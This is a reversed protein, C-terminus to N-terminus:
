RAGLGYLALLTRRRGARKRLRRRLERGFVAVATVDDETAARGGFLVAQARDTLLRADLGFRGEVFVATEEFTQSAPVAHGFEDLDAHVMALAARLRAAADGRRLGRRRLLAHGVPWLALGLVVGAAVAWPLWGRVGSRSPAVVALDGGGNQVPDEQLGRLTDREPVALDGLAGGLARTFPDSFDASASSTGPGPLSQGPTPEFTVWGVRPFYAEVWAHADNRNVVYIDQAVQTGTAFGVAVRAPIGNFRLLVAMAGAFHQCFGQQTTFLFDAYPSREKPSPSTLSYTYNLRLYEEIRLAIEYPDTAPGVIERNLQFLGLWERHEPDDAMADRWDAETATAASQAPSPFPVAALRAAARPYDRGRGVLDSPELDPAVATIGYAFDPGVPRGLGLIYMGNTHLPVTRAVHLTEVAGGTPLYDTAMDQVRFSQRVLPGEPVLDAAPVAYTFSDGRPIATLQIRESEASFWATGDFGDLANARWYAPVPSRVRMVREDNDPDLLGAYGEMSDFVFRAEGDVSLDWTRWDWLPLGTAVSTSGVLWVALLAVVAAGAVGTATDRASWIRRRLSRSFLLLCVSLVVFALTLTVARPQRDVTLGFVFPVALLVVAPLPRRLSLAAFAALGVVAYLALTLLLKLDGATALDLPFGHAAYAAAGSGLQDAYFAAQERLGGADTPPPMQARAVLVAGLPLLVLAVPWARRRVLGPAGAATAVVVAWVLTDAISPRGIRDLAFAATVALAAFSALYLFARSTKM